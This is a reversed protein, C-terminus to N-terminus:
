WDHPGSVVGSLVYLEGDEDQFTVADKSIVPYEQVTYIVGIIISIILVITAFLIQLTESSLLALNLGNLNTQFDTLFNSLAKYDLRIKSDSHKTM